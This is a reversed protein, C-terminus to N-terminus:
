TSTEKEKVDKITYLYLNYTERSFLTRPMIYSCEDIKEIKKNKKEFYELIM